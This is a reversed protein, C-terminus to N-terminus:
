TDFVLVTEYRGTAPNKKIDVEHYSVAKIDKEFGDVPFGILEGELFNEGLKKFTASVFVASQIDTQAVAFSLFEILLSNIDVAELAIARSIKKAKKGLEAADPRMYFAVGKLANVFLEKVTKGWVKLRMDATHPLVAFGSNIAVDSVIMDADYGIEVRLPLM